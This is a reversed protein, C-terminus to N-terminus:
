RRQEELRVEVLNAEEPRAERAVRKRDEQRAEDPEMRLVVLWLLIEGVCVEAEELDM